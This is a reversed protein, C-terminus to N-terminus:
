NENHGNLRTPWDGREALVARHAIQGENGMYGSNYRELLKESPEKRIREKMEEIRRYKQEQKTM